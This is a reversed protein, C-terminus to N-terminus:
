MWFAVISTGVFYMVLILVSEFGINGWGRKQRYLLGMLLIVNMGITMSTLFVERIGVSPAHYISGDLYALDAAFVFIVDFSNGGIINGMALTLAKRRVAAITTVLEPLSTPVASFWAGAATETLGLRDALAGSTRAILIGAVTITVACVLFTGILGALRANKAEEDPIDEVTEATKEPTWMPLRSSLHFLRFGLVVSFLILVTVPHIHWFTVDPASLGILVLALLFLLLTTQIMNPLSAAAHELNAKRYTIDAVALFMTQAAIGGIANSIALSPRGIAAGTISAALGSLSTTCGLLLLGAFAEGIGIRDALRDAVGALKTGAAAIAVTCALLAIVLATLSWSQFDFLMLQPRPNPVETFGVAWNATMDSRDAIPSERLTPPAGVLTFNGM